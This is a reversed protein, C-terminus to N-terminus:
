FTINKICKNELIPISLLYAIKINGSNIWTNYYAYLFKLFLDIPCWM